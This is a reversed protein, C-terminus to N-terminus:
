LWAPIGAFVSAISTWVIFDGLNAEDLANGMRSLSELLGTLLLALVLLHITLTM